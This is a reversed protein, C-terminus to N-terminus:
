KGSPPMPAVTAQMAALAAARAKPPVATDLGLQAWARQFHMHTKGYTRAAERASIGRWYLSEYDSDTLRGRYASIRKAANADTLLLHGTRMFERATRETILVEILYTGDPLDDPRSNSAM